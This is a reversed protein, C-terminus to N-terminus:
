PTALISRARPSAVVVGNNICSVGFCQRQFNPNHRKHNMTEPSTKHAYQIIDGKSELDNPPHKSCPIICHPNERFSRSTVVSRFIVHHM